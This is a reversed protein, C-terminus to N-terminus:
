PVAGTTEIHHLDLTWTQGATLVREARGGPWALRCPGPHQAVVNVRGLRGGFWQFDVTYGGRARLGRVRGENWATPLAPLLHIVGTHSQCLMELIGALGGFNGDIQFPPHDDLLNPLTSRTLLKRVAAAAAEGDGLRAQLNILWACSWGTHGGGHELRRAITARCAERLEFDEPAVENGPYLGFLSSFHRHGPEAEPLDDAWEQVRGQPSLPMRPLRELAQRARHVLADGTALEAEAELLGELLHRILSHDLTSGVAVATPMGDVLFRNEPSTSPSTTLQGGAGEVLWDLVFECAGRLLPWAQDRLFSRDLGFRWHELLHTALWAGGLPWFAWSADGDTPTAMRWFDVNHHAAWGGCGYHLRAVRRGPPELEAILRFLPQHCDALNAAEAPWYNMPTNINTTYDSNWPPMVHPNWLGQLHAPETGPRSCAALLYRGFRAYLAVLGEDAAGQAFHALREDTPLDERSSAGLELSMRDYFGRHDRVHRKKLGDWDRGEVAELDQRCRQEPPGAVNGSAVVLVIVTSAGRIAMTGAQAKCTGDTQVRVRACFRTGLGEEYVVPWPHDGKWNDAVHSPCRGTLLLDGEEWSLQHPHPCEFSVRLESAGRWRLAIVQDAGSVFAERGPAFAVAESLDLGRRFGTTRAGGLPNQVRLRGLPQFSECRVGLMSREVLSQAERWQRNALLERVRPLARAAEYNITDRPFGSWLTDENLDLLEEDRGGWVMAGLRGNGLPLAEEWRSAPKTYWLTDHLSTDHLPTRPKM